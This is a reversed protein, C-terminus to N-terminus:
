SVNALTYLSSLLVWLRSVVVGEIEHVGHGFSKGGDM